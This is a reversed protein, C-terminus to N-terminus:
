RGSHGPAIGSYALLARHVWRFVVNVRSFWACMYYPIVLRLMKLLQSARGGHRLAALFEFQGDIWAFERLLRKEYAGAAGELSGQPLCEKLMDALIDACMLSTTIGEGSLPCVTGVSEGCGILFPAGPVHFPLSRAPSVMRINCGVASSPVIRRDRGEMGRRLYEHVARKPNVDFSGCGLKVRRADLGMPFVWLYGIGRQEVHAHPPLGQGEVEIQYYPLLWQTHCATRPLLARRWGTADVALDHGSLDDLRARGKHLAAGSGGVLDRLFRNKHYIVPANAQYMDSVFELGPHLVYDDPRLGCKLCFRRFHSRDTIWACDRGWREPEQNEFIDVNFRPSLQRALYGGAVGAGVIAIRM